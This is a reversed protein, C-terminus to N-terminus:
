SKKRGYMKTKLSSKEENVPVEAKLAKPEALKLNANAMVRILAKHNGLGTKELITRLETQQEATGGFKRIFDRAANTTTNQRNGGIEPDKKFDELWTKTQDTWVKNYAQAVKEAVSQVEQVHRNLLKQGFEQGLKAELKNANIFEGLEKNFEAVREQDVTVGEPMKWEFKPLEAPKEEAKVEAPKEGEVPKAEPKVETPKIETKVEPAKAEPKPADDKGLVTEAIPAAAPTKPKVESSAATASSSPTEVPAAAPASAEPTPSAAPPAAQTIVEDAM